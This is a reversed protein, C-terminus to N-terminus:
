LIKDYVIEIDRPLGSSRIIRLTCAAGGGCPLRYIDNEFNIGGRNRKDLANLLLTLNFEEDKEVPIIKLNAEAVDYIYEPEFYKLEMPRINIFFIYHTCGSKITRIETGNKLVVGQRLTRLRMDREPKTITSYLDPKQDFIPKLKAFNLTCAETIDAAPTSPTKPRAAQSFAALPLLMLLFVILNKM